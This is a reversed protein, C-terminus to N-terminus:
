LSLSLHMTWYEDASIGDNGRRLDSTGTSEGVDSSMIAAIASASM